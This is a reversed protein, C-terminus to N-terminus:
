VDSKCTSSINQTSDQKRYSYLPHIKYTCKIDLKIREGERSQAQPTTDRSLFQPQQPMNKKNDANLISLHSHATSISHFFDAAKLIQLVFV